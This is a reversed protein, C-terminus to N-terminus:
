LTVCLKGAAALLVICQMIDWYNLEFQMSFIGILLIGFAICNGNCCYIENISRMYLSCAESIFSWLIKHRVNGGCAHNECLDVVPYQSHM